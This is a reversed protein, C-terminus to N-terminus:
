VADLLLWKCEPSFFYAVKFCDVMQFCSTQNKHALCKQNNIDTSDTIGPNKDIQIVSSLLFQSKLYSRWLLDTSVSSSTLLCTVLSMNTHKCTLCPCTSCTISLSIIYLVISTSPRSISYTKKKGFSSVTEPWESFGQKDENRKMHTVKNKMKNCFWRYLRDVLSSPYAACWAVM